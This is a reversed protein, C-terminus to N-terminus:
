RARVIEGVLVAMPYYLEEEGQAHRALMRAFSVAQEHGAAQGAQELKKLAASIAEHEKLMGPLEQRLADTMPLLWSKLDGVDEKQILRQLVGLPPLAIEEERQFHPRLLSELERAADGVEGPAKMVAQLAAHVEQHEHQLANPIDHEQHAHHEQAMAGRATSVLGLLAVSAHMVITKM